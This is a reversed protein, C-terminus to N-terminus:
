DLGHAMVERAKAAMPAFLDRVRDILPRDSPRTPGGGDIENLLYYFAECEPVAGRGRGDAFDGARLLMEDLPLKGDEYALWMFGLFLEPLGYSRVPEPVTRGRSLGGGLRDGSVARGAVAAPANDGRDASGGM